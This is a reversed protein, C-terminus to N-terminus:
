ANKKENKLPKLAFGWNRIAIRRKETPNEYYQPLHRALFSERKIISKQNGKGKLINLTRKVGNKFFSPLSAKRSETKKIWTIYENQSMDRPRKYDM